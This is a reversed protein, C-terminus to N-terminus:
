TQWRIIVHILLCPRYPSADRKNIVEARHRRQTRGVQIAPPEDMEDEYETEEIDMPELDSDSDSSEDAPIYEEEDEDGACFLNSWDEDNLGEAHLNQSTSNISNLAM